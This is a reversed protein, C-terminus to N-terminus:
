TEKRLVAFPNKTVASEAEEAKIEEESKVGAKRLLAEANPARPYPDLSLALTEAVAEGIDISAGKYFVVDMEAEDLEIEDEPEVRAPQSRFLILFKEEVDAKIPEGTAVCSQTVRAFLKGSATIEDGAHTLAAEAALHVIEVLGFRKALALREQENAEISIAHPEPGLAEIRMLRSFEPIM